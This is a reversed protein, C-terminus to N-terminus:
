WFQIEKGLQTLILLLISFLMYAFFLPLLVGKEGKGAIGRTPRLVQRPLVVRQGQAAPLM